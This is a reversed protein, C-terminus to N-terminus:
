QRVKCSSVLLWSLLFIGLYNLDLRLLGTCQDGSTAPAGKFLYAVSCGARLLEEAVWLACCGIAPWGRIDWALRLVLSIFAAAICVNQVDPQMWAPFPKYGYHVLAGLALLWLVERRRSYM